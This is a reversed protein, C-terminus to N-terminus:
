GRERLVAQLREDPDLHAYKEAVPDPPTRALMAAVEDVSKGALDKAHLSPGGVIGDTTIVDGDLPLTAEDALPTWEVGERPARVLPALYRGGVELRASGWATVPRREGERISWGYTIVRVTGDASPAGDRKWVTEDVRLTVARALYGDSAAGVEDEAVVTVVSVQDGYSVWDTFSAAPFRSSGGDVAVVPSSPSGARLLAWAVVGALVLALAGVTLLAVNRRYIRRERLLAREDTERSSSTM